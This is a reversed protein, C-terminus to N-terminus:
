MLHEVVYVESDMMGVVVMGLAAIVEWNLASM